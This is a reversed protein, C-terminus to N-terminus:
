GPTAGAGSATAPTSAPSARQGGRPGGPDGGGTPRPRRKAAWVGGEGAALVVLVLLARRRRPPEPEPKRKGAVRRAASTLGSATQRVRNYVTPDSLAKQPTLRRARPYADRLGAGALALQEHVYDDDLLREIVETAQTSM